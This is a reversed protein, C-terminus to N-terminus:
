LFNKIKKLQDIEYTPATKLTCKKHQPNFWITCIGTNQGGQIDAQLSDGILIVNEKKVNQDQLCHDFFEKAPKQYGVTESVYFSDMYEYFGSLQLRHIQQEYPANSTVCLTYRPKLYELLEQAGEVPIAHEHLGEVFKNELTIGDFDIGLEKLITKWRIQYHQDKTLTGEEIQTWLASNIRLFVPFVEEKSFPLGFYAFAEQMSALACANFDLLTNDVDLFVTSIM